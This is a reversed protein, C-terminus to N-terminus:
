VVFFDCRDDCHLLVQVSHIKLVLPFIMFPDNQAHLATRNVVAGAEARNNEHLAAM